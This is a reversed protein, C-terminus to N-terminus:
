ALRARIFQAVAQPEDFVLAVPLRTVQARHAASLKVFDKETTILQAHQAQAAHLLADMDAARYAHHDAFARTEVVDAGLSRLTDFFKQPRGIGAFALWKKGQLFVPDAQPVLRAHFVPLTMRAALKQADDGIMVVADARALAAALPERLPGAPLLWGNGVGYPGDFVLLSLTKHLRHHQHADDALLVNAGAVTARMASDVRSRGVWTPAARALLLAEDGVSLFDDIPTVCHAMQKAQARYGRILIHPVLGMVQLLQALAITTPTKGAGGVTVNGVSIVPTLVRSPTVRKRDVWAGARYLVAAPLLAFGYLHKRQWFAPTKM